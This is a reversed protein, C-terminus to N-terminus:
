VIDDELQLVASEDDCTALLERMTRKKLPHIVDPAIEVMPVLVFRRLHLRPHPITLDESSVVLEGALLLDLDLTRSGNKVGRERGRANEVARCVDLLDRAGGAFRIEFVANIFWAESESAVDVPETRYVSSRRTITVGRELLESTGARLESVPDGLNSGLGIYGDM